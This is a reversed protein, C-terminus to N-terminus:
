KVQILKYGISRYEFDDVFIEFTFDSYAPYVRVIATAVDDQNDTPKPLQICFQHIPNLNEDIPLQLLPDGSEFFSFKNERGRLVSFSHEFFSDSSSKHGRNFCIVTFLGLGEDRIMYHFKTFRQTVIDPKMAFKMAGKVVDSSDRSKCDQFLIQSKDFKEENRKVLGESCKKKLVPNQSLGGTFYFADIPVCSMYIERNVMNIIEDYFPEFLENYLDENKFVLIEETDKVCTSISHLETSQPDFKLKIRSSFEYVVKELDYSKHIIEKEHFKKIAMQRFGQDLGYSGLADGANPTLQKIITFDNGIKGSLEFLSIDTTGGGADVVMVAVSEKDQGIGLRVIENSLYVAVAEAEYVLRCRDVDDKSTQVGSREIAERMNLAAQASWVTPYSFCFRTKCCEPNVGAKKYVEKLFNATYNINKQINDNDALDSELMLKFDILLRGETNTEKYYNKEADEGIALQKELKNDYFAAEGMAFAEPAVAALVEACEAVEDLGSTRKLFLSWDVAVVCDGLFAVFFCFIVASALLSGDVVIVTLVKDGLCCLFPDDEAAAGEEELFFFAWLFCFTPFEDFVIADENDDVDNDSALLLLTLCTSTHRGGGYGPINCLACM